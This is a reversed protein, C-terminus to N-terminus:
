NGNPAESLRDPMPFSCKVVTGGNQSSQISLAGGIMKARYNMIRMGLGSKPVVADFGRGDDRITLVGGGKVIAVGIIIRKPDAHKIANTVAEQVLRHLHDALADDHVSIRDNCELRCPVHFIESVESAYHELASMLGHAASVVPLLGRALERTMKISDNVLKVIKAAEAADAASTERLRDELVKGMFAVGTLHQGLGDHLDQGIRRRETESIELITKELRKRESIDRIASSVLVGEETELPSLSIEVPFEYGDKHLGYLEVGAGMPRVRPESIFSRRHSPHKGRLRDPVLKEIEEGLLEQRRYGFLKEVQANVLVIRGTQNVVVVADPAAELLGRFKADARRQETVDIGSAIIYTPTQKTGPLVAASWALIRQKGDRMLWRNEYETRVTNDRIELFLKRFEGAEEPVVFLDWVFKAESEQVSYGTMLECARNFRVIRGERDLVIILAGVTDFIASVVNREDQLAEQVQKLETIDFGVGHIFWPEGDERRVLRAECQFWVVRGDRAMVRYASRLPTGSFFMDAAETSWRDKDDPHIQRYWRVPDELWEKQSFGLAAEIQPSVYAEGIGQDLYAMFVVAPIQDLLVRYRAELTPLPNSASKVADPSVQFFVSALDTLVQEAEAVGLLDLSPIVAM